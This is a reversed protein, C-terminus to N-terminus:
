DLTSPDAMGMRWCFTALWHMRRADLWGNSKRIELLVLSDLSRCITRYITTSYVQLAVPALYYLLTLSRGTNTAKSPRLDVTPQGTDVRTTSEVVTYICCLSSPMGGTMVLRSQYKYDLRAHLLRNRIRSWYMSV